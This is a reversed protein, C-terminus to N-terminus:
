SIHFHELHGFKMTSSIKPGMQVGNMGLNLFSCSDFRAPNRNGFVLLGGHEIQVTVIWIAQCSSISSFILSSHLPFLSWHQFHNNAVVAVKIQANQKYLTFKQFMQHYNIVTFTTFCDIQKTAFASPEKKTALYPHQTSEFNICIVQLSLWPFQTMLM